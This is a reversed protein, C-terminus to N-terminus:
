EWAELVRERWSKIAEFNRELIFLVGLLLLGIGGWILWLYPGQLGNFLQGLVALIVGLIGIYFFRRLRRTMGWGFIAFSEAILMTSFLLGLRLTQWFLSGMLLLLAAYDLWRAFRKNGLSWEVFSIALLYLGAPIAYWQLHILNNWINIYFAYLFWSAILLGVSIYGLRMRQYTAAAAAYLLGTLSFVWVISRIIEPEVLDRYSVGFLARMTWGVLNVGLILVFIIAWGSLLMGSRQLPHEWISLWRPQSPSEAGASQWRKFLQYGFGLTGYGLALWAMEITLARPTLGQANHWQILATLGLTAVFYVLVEEGWASALVGILLAHLLTVWVGYHTAQLSNSQGLLLDILVFFYLPRSWGQWFRDIAFPSGENFRKELWLALAATLVTLPMFNLWFDARYPLAFGRYHLFSIAALHLALAAGLLWFRGRFRFIAWAYFATLLFFSLSVLLEDRGVAFFPSASALGFGLIYLSLGWWGLLRKVFAKPWQTPERWPFDRWNGLRADLLTATGLSAIAGPLLALGYFRPELTSQQLASAYPVVILACAPALLLPQKFWFASIAYLLAASGYGWFAGIRDQSSAPLGLPILIYAANIAGSAYADLRFRRLLWGAALYVAALGILWWGHRDLPVTSQRLAALLSLALAAAAPYVWTASKFLWTSIIMLLATYLLAFALLGTIHATLLLGVVVAAYGTIYAPLGYPRKLAPNPALRELLTGALLGLAGFSLLLLGVHEHRAAPQLFKLWYVSWLPTLALAPYLFKTAAFPSLNPSTRNQRHDEWAAVGYLAVALGVTLRSTPVDRVAWLLSFPTLLRAATVLPTVYAKPAYRRVVLSVLFYFWALGMWSISFETVGPQWSTFWGLNTLITWPIFLLGAAFWVFRARRFLRASLAYLATVILLAVAAWIQQVRGGGLIYYNRVFALGIVVVSGVWGTVLLPYSYLGWLLRLYARWRSGIRRLSKTFFLTREALILATVILAAKAALSGQGSSYMLILFGAGAAVLWISIFAWIRSYRGWAHCVYFVALLLQDTAGWLQMQDTWAPGHFAENLPAFYIRALAIIALIHASHYLPALFQPTGLSLKRREAWLGCLLYVGSLLCFAFTLLDNDVHVHELLQDLGWATVLAAPYLELSKRSALADAFYLLGASLIVISPTFGEGAISFAIPISVVSVILGVWRWPRRCGDSTFRLWHSTAVMGWSLTALALALSFDPSHQNTVVTWLWYPLPLAAFWHYLSGDKLIGYFTSAKATEPLRADYFGPRQQYALAAGWASLAIFNGLTYAIINGDFIVFAPLVAFGAFGYAIIVLTSLFPKIRESPVLRLVIFIYLIALSAWGIGLQNLKFHMETMVFTSATLVFFSAVYLLSTRQWLIASLVISIALVAHAAAAPASSSLDFLSLTAAIVVIMWGCSGATIAHEQLMPDLWRVSQKSLRYNALFYLPTLLALGFAHWANRIGFREFLAMQGLFVAAPLALAALRGLGVSRHRVAGWAFVFSGLFWTVATANQLNDLTAHHLVLWQGMTLPMLVAPLWLALYRFPDILVKLRQPTTERSIITALSLMLLALLSLGIGYYDRPLRFTEMVALILSGAAVGVLYGFFRSQIQMTMFIYFLLSFISAIAWFERWNEAPIGNVYITYANIPILLAAIASVAIGSRYLKTRKRIFWGLLMFGVTATTPIVIRLAPSFDKWGSIVFSILATFVLFISLFILAQLTRESLISRRVREGLPQQPAKPAPPAVVVTPAVPATPKVPAQQPAARLGLNIELKEKEANLASSIKEEAEPSTFADAERLAPLAEIIFRITQLRETPLSSSEPFQTDELKKSLEAARETYTQLFDGPKLLGNTRWIVMREFFARHRLLELSAQRVEDPKLPAARLGLKVETEKHRENYYKRLRNVVDVNFGMSPWRNIEKLLWLLHSLTELSAADGHFGCQPCEGSTPNLDAENCKPCRM